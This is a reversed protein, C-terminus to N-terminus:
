EKDPTDSTDASSSSDWLNVVIIEPDMVDCLQGIKIAAIRDQINLFPMVPGKNRGRLTDDINYM